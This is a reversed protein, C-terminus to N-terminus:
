QPPDLKRARATICTGSAIPGSSVELLELQVPLQLEWEEPECALGVFDAHLGSPGMGSSEPAHEQGNVVLRISGAWTLDLWSERAGESDLVEVAVVVCPQLEVTRVEGDFISIVCTQIRYGSAVIRLVVQEGASSALVIGEGAPSIRNEQGLMGLYAGGKPLSGILSGWHVEEAHVPVGDRSDVFLVRVGPNDTADAFVVNPGPVLLVSQLLTGFYCLDYQGPPLESLEWPLELWEQDLLAAGAQPPTMSVRDILGGEHYIAVELTTPLNARTCRVTGLVRALQDVGPSCVRAADTAQLPSSPAGVQERSISGALPLARRSKPEQSHVVGTAGVGLSSRELSDHADDGGIWATAMVVAAFLAALGILLKRHRPSNLVPPHHPM